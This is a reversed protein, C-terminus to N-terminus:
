CEVKKITWSKCRYMAVPFGYSQSYPGKNAFPHRQNKNCQGPKDYSKKGPAPMKIEHSCDSGVTIKSSFFIFDTVAEVKIGEIQWSTPLGNTMTKTKEINLKLGSKESEEKLKMLLRKLEEESEAMLTTGDAYRLNNSNRRAIKIGSRFLM